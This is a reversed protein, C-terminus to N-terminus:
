PGARDDESQAMVWEEFAAAGNNSASIDGDNQGRPDESFGEDLKFTNSGGSSSGSPTYIPRDFITLPGLSASNSDMVVNFDPTTPFYSTSRQVITIHEQM